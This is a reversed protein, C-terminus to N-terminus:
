EGVHRPGNVGDDAKAARHIPLWITFRSGSKPASQLQIQGGLARVIREAVALGLGLGVVGRLRAEESRFFPNFVRGIDAAAIGSGEDMVAVEAGGSAGSIQVHVTSGPSSYKLANDILNDIAQALLTPQAHVPPMVTEAREIRLDGYRPHGSWAEAVHHPLWGALDVAELGPLQADADARALFLLGEVIQRLRGAQAVASTLVRRYEDPDRDRRLAVEMQGLMATLPTRLQHSAEATFRRQREFSEQLRALLDNFAAAVDALEDRTAPVPLRMELDDADIEKAAGSMNTLPALARRCVWRSGCAASIWVAVSVGVLSWALTRVASDTADLPAAVVFVLTRYREDGPNRVDDPRPRRDEIDSQPHAHTRRYVWWQGGEWSAEARPVPVGNVAASYGRLLRVHDPDGDVDRGRCDFVAWVTPADRKAPWLTRERRDWELGDPEVEVAAVLTDLNSAAREDVQQMLHTRALAYLTVSFAALVLALAILFFLTLRTTLTM